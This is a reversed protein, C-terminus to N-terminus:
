DIVIIGRPTKNLRISGHSRVVYNDCNSFSVDENYVSAHFALFMNEELPMTEGANFAPRDVIDCSQSHAGLRPEPYYGKVTLKENFKACIDGPIAGPICIEAMYDHIYMGYDRADKMNQGPEKFSYIRAVEGWAYFPCCLEVLISVYDDKEIIKNYGSYNSGPKNQYSRVMINTEPCDLSQALYNLDTIIQMETRGPRLLSPIAAAIKDHINVSNLFLEMEYDSKVARLHDTIDSANVFECNPLNETLYKYVNATIYGMGVLGIKKFGKKKISVAMETPIWNDGYTMSIIYPQPIEEIINEIELYPPKVAGNLAGHGFLSIGEKSFIAQISYQSVSLDTLYKMAGGLGGSNSQLILCDIGKADMEALTAQHRRKMETQAIAYPYKSM